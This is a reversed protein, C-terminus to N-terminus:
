LTRLWDLFNTWEQRDLRTTQLYDADPRLRQLVVRAQEITGRAEGPRKLRRYCAAIQVYAELSEPEHQYRNTAASYSAIAEEYRGLDFLADARGFYCNRLMALEAPSQRPARKEDSLATLLEQYEALAEELEQQIQRNLALRSTEINTVALKKRPWLASHRYSEAIWYRAAMAQPAAPYREVAESLVRIAEQFTLYSLELQALAEKAEDSDGDDIGSKRSAAEEETARRVLLMGLTYISDRWDIAQPTLAHKYLNDLLLREAKALEGREQWANSELLRARYSAPHTPFDDQCQRLTALAKDIQGLTLEAQGRGLLAEPRGQAPNQRLFEDYLRIAQRYGQGERYNEAAAALDTTYHRTAVRLSALREGLTAAQRVHRRAEARTVEATDFPEEGAQSLLQRAWAEEAAIQLALATTESVLPVLKGALEVASALQQKAILDTCAREMRESLEDLPLWRNDYTLPAPAQRLVSELATVAPAFKGERLELEGLLLTAALGDPRGFRLKSLREYSVRAAASDGVLETAQALLLDAAPVLERDIGSQRRLESLREIALRLSQEAEPLPPQPSRNRSAREIAIQAQLILIEPNNQRDASLEALLEEARSWNGQKREIQALLLRGSELEAPSLNPSALYEAAERAADALRPPHQRQYSVALLRRLLVAAQPHAGIAERLLPVSQTYRGGHHLTRALEILGETERGPPFGHMRSQELYRSAVLYVARRQEGEPLEQAERAILMGLVFMAGGREAFTAEPLSQLEAALQRAEKSEGADLRTLAKPLLFERPTAEKSNWVLTLAIGGGIVAVSLLIALGSAMKWSRLSAPIWNAFRAAAPAPSAAVPSEPKLAM